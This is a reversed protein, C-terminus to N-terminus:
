SLAEEWGAETGLKLEKIDTGPVLRVHLGCQHIDAKLPNVSM